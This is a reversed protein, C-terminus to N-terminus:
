YRTVWESWMRRSRKDFVGSIHGYLTLLINWSTNLGDNSQVPWTLLHKGARIALGNDVLDEAILHPVRICIAGDDAIVAFVSGRLFFNNLHRRYEEEMRLPVASFGSIGRGGAAVGALDSARETLLEGFTKEVRAPVSRSKETSWDPAILAGALWPAPLESLRAVM